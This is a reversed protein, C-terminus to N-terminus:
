RAKRMTQSVNAIQKSTFHRACYEQLHLYAGASLKVYKGQQLCNRKGKFNSPLKLQYFKSFIVANKTSKFTLTLSHSCQKRDIYIQPTEHCQSIEQLNQALEGLPKTIIPCNSKERRLLKHQVRRTPDSFVIFGADVNNYRFRQKAADVTVINSQAHAHCISGALTNNAKGLRKSVDTCNTDGVVTIDISQKKAILRLEQTLLTIDICLKNAPVKRTSQQPVYYM